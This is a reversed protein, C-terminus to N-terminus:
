FSLFINLGQVEYHFVLKYLGTQLVQAPVNILLQNYSPITNNIQIQTLEEKMGIQSMEDRVLKVSFLKWEM